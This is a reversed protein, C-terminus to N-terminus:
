EILLKGAMRLYENTYFGIAEIDKTKDLNILYQFNKELNLMKKNKEQSQTSNKDM